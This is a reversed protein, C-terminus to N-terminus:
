PLVAYVFSQHGNLRHWVSHLPNPLICHHALPRSLDHCLGALLRMVAISHKVQFRDAYPLMVPLMYVPAVFLDYLVRVSELFLDHNAVIASIGIFIGSLRRADM